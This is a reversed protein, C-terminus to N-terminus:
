SIGRTDAMIQAVILSVSLNKPIFQPTDKHQGADPLGVFLLADDGNDCEGSDKDREIEIEHKLGADPILIGKQGLLSVAAKLSFLVAYM